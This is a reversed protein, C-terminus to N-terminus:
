IMSMPATTANKIANSTVLVYQFSDAPNCFASRPQGAKRSNQHYTNLVEPNDVM